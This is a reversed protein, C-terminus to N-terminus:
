GFGLLMARAPLADSVFEDPFYYARERASSSIRHIKCYQRQLYATCVSYTDVSVGMCTQLHVLITFSTPLISVHSHLKCLTFSTARLQVVAYSMLCAMRARWSHSGCATRRSHECVIIYKSNLLLDICYRCAVTMEQAPHQPCRWPWLKFSGARNTGWRAPIGHGHSHEQGWKAYLFNGGSSAQGFRRRTRSRIVMCSIPNFCWFQLRCSFWSLILDFFAHTCVTCRQISRHNQSFLVVALEQIPKTRKSVHNQLAGQLFTLLCVSLDSAYESTKGEHAEFIGSVWYEAGSTQLWQRELKCGSSAGPLAAKIDQSLLGCLRQGM